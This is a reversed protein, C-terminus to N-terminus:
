KKLSSFDGVGGSPPDVIKVSDNLLGQMERFRKDWRKMYEYTNLVAVFWVDPDVKRGLDSFRWLGLSSAYYRDGRLDTFAIYDTSVVLDADPIVQFLMDGLCRFESFPLIGIKKQQEAFSSIVYRLQGRQLDTLSM